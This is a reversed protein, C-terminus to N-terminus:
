RHTVAERVNQAYNHLGSQFEAAFCLGAMETCLCINRFCKEQDRGVACCVLCVFLFFVM